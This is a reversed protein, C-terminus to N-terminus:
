DWNEPHAAEWEAEWEMESCTVLEGNLHLGYAKGSWPTEAEHLAKFTARAASESPCTAFLDGNLDIYNM